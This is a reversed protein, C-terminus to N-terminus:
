GVFPQVGGLAAAVEAVLDGSTKVTWGQGAVFKDGPNIETLFAIAEAQQADSAYTAVTMQDQVGDRATYWCTQARDSYGTASPPDDAVCTVVEASILDVIESVSEYRALQNPDAADESKDQASPSPTAPVTATVTETATPAPANSGAATDSSGCGALTALAAALVVIKISM